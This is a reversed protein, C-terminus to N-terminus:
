HLVWFTDCVKDRPALYGLSLSFDLEGPRRFEDESLPVRIKSAGIMCLM